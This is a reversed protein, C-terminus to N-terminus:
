ILLGSYVNEWLLSCVALLCMFFHEVDSVMPSICILVVALYQRVGSLIAIMLFVVSLLHQSPHPSFPVGLVSKTPIYIPATGISLLTYM